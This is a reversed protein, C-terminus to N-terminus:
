KTRGDERIRIYNIVGKSYKIEEKTFTKLLEEETIGDVIFVACQFMRTIQEKMNMKEWQM